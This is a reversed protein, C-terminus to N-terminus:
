NLGLHCLNAAVFIQLKLVVPWLLINLSILEVRNLQAVLILILIRFHYIFNLFNDMEKKRAHTLTETLGGFSGTASILSGSATDYKYLKSSGSNSNIQFVFEAGAVVIDKGGFNDMMLGTSPNNDSDVYLRFLATGANGIKYALRLDDPGVLAYIQEIACTGSGPNIVALSFAGSAPGYEDGPEGPQPCYNGDFSQGNVNTLGLLVIFLSFFLTKKMNQIPLFKKMDNTKEFDM